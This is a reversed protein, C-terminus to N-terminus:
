FGLHHCPSCGVKEVACMASVLLAFRSLSDVSCLTMITKPFLVLPDMHLLICNTVRQRLELSVPWHSPWSGAVERQRRVNQCSGYRPRSPHSYAVQYEKEM